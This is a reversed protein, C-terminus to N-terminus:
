IEFDVCARDLRVPRMFAGVAKHDPHIIYAELDEFSDFDSILCLDYNSQDANSSNITVSSARILDIKSPLADLMSKTIALNEAKTRGEAEEKFKFM